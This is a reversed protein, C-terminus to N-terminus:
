AIIVRYEHAGSYSAPCEFHRSLLRYSRRTERTQLKRRPSALLVMDEMKMTKPLMLSAFLKSASVFTATVQNTCGVRRVLTMRSGQRAIPTARRKLRSLRAM